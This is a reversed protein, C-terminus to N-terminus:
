FIFISSKIYVIFSVSKYCIKFWLNSFNLSTWVKIKESFCSHYSLSGIYLNLQECNIYIIYVAYM